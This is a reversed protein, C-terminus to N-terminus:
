SSPERLRLVIDGREIFVELVEGGECCFAKTVGAPIAISVQYGSCVGVIPVGVEAFM